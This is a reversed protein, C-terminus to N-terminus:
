LIGLLTKYVLPHLWGSADKKQKVAARIETSSIPYLPAEVVQVQPYKQHLSKLDFGKRPYVLIQYNELLVKYERWLTFCDLNDAGIILTFEKEPYLKSLKQLSLLTYNPTPMSFEVDCSKFYPKDAIALNLMQLRQQDPLLDVNQKLPNHPSLVFWLEQIDTHKILYDALATHGLHIPNFSGFFLGVM